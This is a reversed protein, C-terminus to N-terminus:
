KSWNVLCLIFTWESRHDPIIDLPPRIPDKTLNPLELLQVDLPAQFLVRITRQAINKPIGYYQQLSEFAEYAFYNAMSILEGADENLWLEFKASKLYATTANLLVRVNQLELERRWSVELPGPSRSLNSICCHAQVYFYASARYHGNQFLLIAQAELIELQFM